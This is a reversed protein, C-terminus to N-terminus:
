YQLLCCSHTYASLPLMRHFVWMGIKIGKGTNGSAHIRDAGTMIIPPYQQPAEKFTPPDSLKLEPRPYIPVPRVAKVGKLQAAIKKVDEISTM